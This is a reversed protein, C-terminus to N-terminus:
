KINTSDQTTNKCSKGSIKGSLTGCCTCHHKYSGDWHHSELNENHSSKLILSNKRIWKKARQSDTKCSCTNGSCHQWLSTSCHVHLKEVRSQSTPWHAKHMSLLQLKLLVQSGGKKLPVKLLRSKQIRCKTKMLYILFKVSNWPEDLARAVTVDTMSPVPDIPAAM